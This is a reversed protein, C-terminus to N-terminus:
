SSTGPSPKGPEPKRKTFNRFLKRKWSEWRDRIKEPIRIEWWLFWAAKLLFSSEKRIGRIILPDRGGGLLEVWEKLRDASHIVYKPNFRYKM